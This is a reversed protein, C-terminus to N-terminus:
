LWVLLLHRLGLQSGSSSSVPLEASTSERGHISCRCPGDDLHASTPPQPQPAIALVVTFLEAISSAIAFSILEPLHQTSFVFSCSRTCHMLQPSFTRPYPPHGLLLLRRTSFLICMTFHYFLLATAPYYGRLPPYALYKRKKCLHYM